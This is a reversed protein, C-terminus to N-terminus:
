VYVSRSALKTKVIRGDRDVVRYANAGARMSIAEYEEGQFIVACHDDIGIGQGNTGRLISIFAEEARNENFHPSHYGKLFGLGEILESEDGLGYEFWCISGASIGALITGSEYANWLHPRVMRKRWIELLYATDGGGVYILDAQAIQRKIEGASTGNNALLLCNVECGLREGYVTRFTECYGPSDHSATPIFLARPTKKGTRKVIEADIGLTELKGLEGGGISAITRM